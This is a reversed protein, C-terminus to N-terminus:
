ALTRQTESYRQHCLEWLRLGVRRFLSWRCLMYAVIRRFRSLKRVPLFFLGARQIETIKGLVEGSQVPPDDQPMCDGRAVLVVENGVRRKSVVRHVFFRRQRMYLLLEGPEVQEPRRSQVTLLDGPWLSPLMSVGRARLKVVGWSRLAAAALSCRGEERTQPNIDLVQYRYGVTGAISLCFASFSNRQRIGALHSFVRHRMVAPCSPLAWTEMM